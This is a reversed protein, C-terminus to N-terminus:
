DYCVGRAGNELAEEAAKHILTNVPSWGTEDERRLETLLDPLFEDFDEMVGLDPFQEADAEEVVTSDPAYVVNAYVFDKPVRIVLEDEVMEVSINM